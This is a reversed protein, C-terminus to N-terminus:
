PNSATLSLSLSLCPSSFFPPSNQKEGLSFFAAAAAVAAHLLFFRFLSWLRCVQMPLRLLQAKMKHYIEEDQREGLPILIGHIRREVTPTKKKLQRSLALHTLSLSFFSPSSFRPRRVVTGIRAGRTKKGPFPKAKMGGRQGGREAARCGRRASEPLVVVMTGEADIRALHADVERKLEPCERALAEEASLGSGSEVGDDDDFAHEQQESNIATAAHKARVAAAKRKAGKPPMAAFLFVVPSLRSSLAIRGRGFSFRRTSEFQTKKNREKERSQWERESEVWVLFSFCFLLTFVRRGYRKKVHEFGGLGLEDGRDEQEVNRESREGEGQDPRRRPVPPVHEQTRCLPISKKNDRRRSQNKKKKKQLFSYM